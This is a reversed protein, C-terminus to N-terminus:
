QEKGQPEPTLHDIALVRRWLFPMPPADKFSEKAEFYVGMAKHAEQYLDELAAMRKENRELGELLEISKYGSEFFEAPCAWKGQYTRGNDIIWSGVRLYTKGFHKVPVFFMKTKDSQDKDFLVGDPLPVKKDFMEQTFLTATVVEGMTRYETLQEKGPHIM